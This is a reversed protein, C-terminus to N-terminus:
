FTTFNKFTQIIQRVVNPHDRCFQPLNNIYEKELERIVSQDFLVDYQRDNDIRVTGYELGLAEMLNFTNSGSEKELLLQFTDNELKKLIQSYSPKIRGNWEITGFYSLHNDEYEVGLAYMPMYEEWKDTTIMSYLQVIISPPNYIYIVLSFTRDEKTHEDLLRTIHDYWVPNNELSRSINSKITKTRARYESKTFNLFTFSNEKELGRLERIFQDNNNRPDNAIRGSKHIMEVRWDQQIYANFLDHDGANADTGDGSITSLLDGEIYGVQDNEEEYYEKSAELISTADEHDYSLKILTSYYELSQRVLIMYCAFPYPIVRQGIYKLGLLVYESIGIEAFEEQISKFGDKWETETIFHISKQIPSLELEITPPLLKIKEKNLAEKGNWDIRYAELSLETQMFLENYPVLLERWDTSLFIIRIKDDKVGYHEKILRTYKLVENIGSREAGKDRKIEVIVFHGILDEALIDIAGGTGYPNNLTFEDEILSLNAEIFNLNNKLWNRILTEINKM